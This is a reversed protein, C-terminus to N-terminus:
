REQKNQEAVAQQIIPLRMLEVHVLLRLYAAFINVDIQKVVRQSYKVVLARYADFHLAGDTLRSQKDVIYHWHKQIAEVVATKESYIFDSFGAHDDVIMDVLGEAIKQCTHLM